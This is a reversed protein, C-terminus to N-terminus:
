LDSFDPHHLISWQKIHNIALSMTANPKNGVRQLYSFLGLTMARGCVYAHAKLGDEFWGRSRLSDVNGRFQNIYSIQPPLELQDYNYM